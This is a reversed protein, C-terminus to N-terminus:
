PRGNRGQAGQRVTQDQGDRPSRAANDNQLDKVDQATDKTTKAIENLASSTTASREWAKDSRNDAWALIAFLMGLAVALGGAITGVLTTTSPLKDLRSDIHALKGDLEARFDAKMRGVESQIFAVIHEPPVGGGSGGSGRSKPSSGGGGVRHLPTPSVM